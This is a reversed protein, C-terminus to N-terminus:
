KLFDLKDVVTDFNLSDLFERTCYAPKDDPIQDRQTLNDLLFMEIDDYSQYFGDEDPCEIMQEIKEEYKSYTDPCAMGLNEKFFKRRANLAKSFEFEILGLEKETRLSKTFIM